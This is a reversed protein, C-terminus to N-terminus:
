KKLNRKYEGKAKKLQRCFTADAHLRAVLAGALLISADVDSKYHHGCILRNEAYIRARLVLANISDPNIESLLYATTFGRLTHGSPYSFSGVEDDYENRQQILSSDGFQEFPRKRQYINKAQQATLRVCDMSRRLLELLAPTKQENIPMGFADQFCKAILNYGWQTYDTAAQNARQTDRRMNQGWRYYYSDNYFAESDPTPPAPLIAYGNPVQHSQLYPEAVEAQGLIPLAFASLLWFSLIHKPTM